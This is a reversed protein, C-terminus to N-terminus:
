RSGLSAQVLKRYEAFLGDVRERSLGYDELAYIHKHGHKHPPNAADWALVRTSTAEDLPLGVAEFVRKVVQKSSGTVERFHVDIFKLEPLNARNAMHADIARVQGAVYDTTPTRKNTFPKHFLEMLRLGSPITESPERHTMVLKADPFVSV